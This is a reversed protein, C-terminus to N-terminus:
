SRDGKTHFRKLKRGIWGVAPAIGAAYLAGGICLGLLAYLRLGDGSALLAQCLAPALLLVCLVDACMGLWAKRHHFGGALQIGLALAAGLLVMLLFARGQSSKAFLLEITM